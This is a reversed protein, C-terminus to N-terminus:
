LENLKEQKLKELVDVREQVGNLQEELEKIHNEMGKRSEGDVDNKNYSAYAQELEEKIHNQLQKFRIIRPNFFEEVEKTKAITM